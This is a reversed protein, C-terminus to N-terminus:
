DVSERHRFYERLDSLFRERDVLPNSRCFEEGAAILDDLVDIKQHAETNFFHTMAAAPPVAPPPVAGAESPLSAQRDIEVGALRGQLVGVVLRQTKGQNCVREGYQYSGALAAVMAEKANVQEAGSLESAFLWLRVILDKGSVMLGSISFGIGDVLPGFNEELKKPELLAGEALGRRTEDMRTTRLYALFEDYAKDIKGSSIKGQSAALLEVAKRTRPDRDGSHVDIGLPQFEAVFEGALQRRTHEARQESPVCSMCLIITKIDLVHTDQTILQRAYYIVEEKEYFPAFNIADIIDSVYQERGPTQESIVSQVGGVTVEFRLTNEFARIIASRAQSTMTPTFFCRASRIVNKPETNLCLHHLARILEAQDHATMPQERFTQLLEETVDELLNSYRASDHFYERIYRVAELIEIREEVSMQPTIFPLALEIDKPRTRAVLSLIKDVSGGTCPLILRFLIEAKKQFLAGTVDEALERHHVQRAWNCALGVAKVVEGMEEASMEPTIFRRSLGIAEQSCSAVLYPIKDFSGMGPPILRLLTKPDEAAAVIASRTSVDMEPAIVDLSNELVRKRTDLSHYNIIAQLFARRPDIREAWRYPLRDLVRDRLNEFFAAVARAIRMLLGKFGTPSSSVVAAIVRPPISENYAEM